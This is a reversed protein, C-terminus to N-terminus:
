TQGDNDMELLLCMKQVPRELVTRTATQLKARRVFGWKDPFTEIVKAMPWSGRPSDQDVILVIDGLKVNRKPTLWKQRTQLLPLYEQM